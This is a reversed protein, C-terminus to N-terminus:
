VVVNCQRLEVKNKDQYAVPTLLKLSPEINYDEGHLKRFFSIMHNFSCFDMSNKDRYKIRIFETIEVSPKKDGHGDEYLPRKCYDCYCTEYIDSVDDFSYKENEDKYIVDCDHYSIDLHYKDDQGRKINATTIFITVIDETGEFFMDHLCKSSCIYKKNTAVYDGIKIPKILLKDSYELVTFFEYNGLTGEYLCGNSSGISIIEKGCKECKIVERMKEVKRIKVM